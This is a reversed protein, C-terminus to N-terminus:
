FNQKDKGLYNIIKDNILTFWEKLKAKIREFFSLEVLELSKTLHNLRIIGESALENIELNRAEPNNSYYKDLIINLNKDTILFYQLGGPIMKYVLDVEVNIIKILTEIAPTINDIIAKFAESIEYNASNKTDIKIREENTMVGLRVLVENDIKSRAVWHYKDLIENPKQLVTKALALKRIEPHKWLKSKVLATVIRNLENEMDKRQRNTLMEPLPLGILNKEPNVDFADFIRREFSLENIEKSEEIKM